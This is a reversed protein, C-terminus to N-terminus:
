LSEVKPFLSIEESGQTSKQLQQLRGVSWDVFDVIYKSRHIYIIM